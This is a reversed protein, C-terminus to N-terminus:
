ISECPIDIAGEKLTCADLDEFNCSNSPPITITASGIDCNDIQLTIETDGDSYGLIRATLGNCGPNCFSGAMILSLTGDSGNKPILGQRRFAFSYEPGPGVLESKCVSKKASGRQHTVLFDDGMDVACASHIRTPYEVLDQALAPPLVTDMLKEGLGSQDALLEGGDRDLHTM